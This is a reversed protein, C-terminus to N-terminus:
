AFSYPSACNPPGNGGGPRLTRVTRPPLRPSVLYPRVKAAGYRGRVKGGPQNNYRKEAVRDITERARLSAPFRAIPPGDEWGPRQATSAIDGGTRAFGGLQM